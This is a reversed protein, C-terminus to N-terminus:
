CEIHSGLVELVGEFIMLMSECDRGDQISEWAHKRAQNRVRAQYFRTHWSSWAGWILDSKVGYHPELHRRSPM